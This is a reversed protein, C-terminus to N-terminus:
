LQTALNKVIRRSLMDALRLPEPLSYKANWLISVLEAADEASVKNGISVYLKRSNKQLVYGVVEGDVIIAERNGIRIIDGYLLRKAIGITPIDIVVGIHSAIGCKRPHAMGHGNILIIDVHIRNMLQLLTKIMLPAERFALLGPIYPISVEECLQSYTILTNSKVNYAVAVACGISGKYSVDTGAVISISHPDIHKITINKCLLKQARIANEVILTM